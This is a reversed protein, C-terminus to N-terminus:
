IEGRVEQWLLEVDDKDLIIDEQELSAIVDDVIDEIDPYYIFQKTRFYKRSEEIYKTFKTM